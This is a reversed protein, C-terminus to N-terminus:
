SALVGVDKLVTLNDSVTPQAVHAVRAINCVCAEGTPSAAILSLTRVRGAARTIHPGRTPICGTSPRIEIGTVGTLETQPLAGAIRGTWRV